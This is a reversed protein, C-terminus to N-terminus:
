QNEKRLKDALMEYDSKKVTGYLVFRLFESREQKAVWYLNDAGLKKFSEEIKVTMDLKEKLDVKENIKFSIHYLMEQKYGPEIM